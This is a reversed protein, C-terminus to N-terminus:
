QTLSRELTIAEARPTKIFLRFYPGPLPVVSGHDGIPANEILVDVPGFVQVKHFPDNKLIQNAAPDDRPFDDLPPVDLLGDPSQNVERRRTRPM